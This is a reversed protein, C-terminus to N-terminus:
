PSSQFGAAVLNKIDCARIQSTSLFLLEMNPKDEPKGRKVFWFPHLEESMTWEVNENITGKPMKMEPAIFVDVSVEDVLEGYEKIEASSVSRRIWDVKCHVGNRPRM